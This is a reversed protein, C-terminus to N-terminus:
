SEVAVSLAVNELGGVTAGSPGIDAPVKGVNRDIVQHEVGVDRKRQIRGGISAHKPRDIKAPM